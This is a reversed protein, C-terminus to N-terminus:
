EQEPLVQLGQAPPLYLLRAVAVELQWDHAAPLYLSVLAALEETRKLKPAEDAKAEPKTKVAAM